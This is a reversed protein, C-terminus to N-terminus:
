WNSHSADVTLGSQEYLGPGINSYSNPISLRGNSFIWQHEIAIGDKKDKVVRYDQTHKEKINFEYAGPGPTEKPQFVFRQVRSGFITKEKSQTQNMKPHSDEQNGFPTPKNNVNM